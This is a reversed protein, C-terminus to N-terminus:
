MSLSGTIMYASRYAFRLQYPRDLLTETVEERRRDIHTHTCANTHIQTQKDTCADAQRLIDAHTHTSSPYYGWCSTTPALVNLTAFNLFATQSETEWHLCGSLYTCVTLDEAQWVLVCQCARGGKKSNESSFLKGLTM